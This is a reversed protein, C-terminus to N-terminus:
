ILDWPRPMTAGKKLSKRKTILRLNEVSTDGGKSLPVIHDLHMERRDNARVLDRELVRRKVDRPMYRTLRPPKVFWLPLLAAPILALTGAANPSYGYFGQLVNAVVVLIILGYIARRIRVALLAKMRKGVQLVYFLVVALLVGVGVFVYHNSDLTM